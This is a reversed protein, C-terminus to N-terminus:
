AWSATSRSADVWASYPSSGIDVMVNLVLIKVIYDMQMRNIQM